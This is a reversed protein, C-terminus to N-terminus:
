HDCHKNSAPGRPDTMGLGVLGFWDIFVESLCSCTFHMRAKAIYQIDVDGEALLTRASEHMPRHIFGRRGGVLPM